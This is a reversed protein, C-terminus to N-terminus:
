ASQDFLVSDNRQEGAVNTATRATKSQRSSLHLERGAMLGDKRFVLIMLMFVALVLEQTGAPLAWQAGGVTVGIELRRFVDVITSVVVVGVVAGALSGMGGVILM